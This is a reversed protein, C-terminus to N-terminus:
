DIIVYVKRSVIELNNNLDPHDIYITKGSNSISDIRKILYNNKSKFIIQHNLYLFVNEPTLKITNM